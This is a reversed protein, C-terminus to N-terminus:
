PIEVHKSRYMDAGMVAIGGVMVAIGLNMMGVCSKVRNELYAKSEEVAADDMVDDYNRSGDRKLAEKPIHGGIVM